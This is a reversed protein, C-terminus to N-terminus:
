GQKPCVSIFDYVRSLAALGFDMGQLAARGQKPWALCYGEGKGRDGQLPTCEKM